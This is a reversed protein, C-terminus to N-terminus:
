SWREQSNKSHEKGRANQEDWRYQQQLYRSWRRDKWQISYLKVQVSALMGTSSLKHSNWKKKGEEEGKEWKYPTNMNEKQQPPWLEVPSWSEIKETKTKNTLGGIKPSPMTTTQTSKRHPQEM